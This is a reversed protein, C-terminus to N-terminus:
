ACVKFYLGILFDDSLLTQLARTRKKEGVVALLHFEDLSSHGPARRDAQADGCKPCCAHHSALLPVFDASILEHRAITVVVNPYGGFKPLRIVVIMETEHNHIM